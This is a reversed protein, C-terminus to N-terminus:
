QAKGPTAVRNGGRNAYESEQHRLQEVQQELVVRQSEVTTAKILQELAHIEGRLNSVLTSRSPESPQIGPPHYPPGVPHFTGARIRQCCGLVYTVPSRLPDDKDLAKHALAYLIDQHHEADITEVLTRHVLRRMNGDISPPWQLAKIAKDRSEGFNSNRSKTTTTTNISSSSREGPEFKPGSYSDIVQTDPEFNSGPAPNLNQVVEDSCKNKNPVYFLEFYEGGGDALSHLANSSALRRTTPDIPALSDKGKAANRDIATLAARAARKAQPDHHNSAVQEILQMYEADYRVADALTAPEGHIIYVNGAFQGSGTDRVRRALSIWRTARLLIRDRIVTGRSHRLTRCATNVSPMAISGHPQKRAEQTLYLLHIKASDTLFPDHVLISPYADNWVGLFLLAEQAPDRSTNRLAEIAQDLHREITSDLEM